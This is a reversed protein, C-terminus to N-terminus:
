MFYQILTELVQIESIGKMCSVHDCHGYLNTDYCPMCSLKETTKVIINRDSWPRTSVVQTPGALTVVPVGLAAAIHGLGSDGALLVRTKSIVAGVTRLTLDSAFKVREDIGSLHPILERDDTGFFIIVRADLFKDLFMRIVLCFKEPPFRKNKQKYGAGPHIGLVDRGDLGSERWFRDAHVRSEPDLHFYLQGIKADPLIMRLINLNSTVRHLDLEVPCWHTYGWRRPPLCDGTIVKIGSLLKLLQAIRPSIRTCIIAADFRERRFGRFTKILQYFIMKDPSMIRIENCFSAGDVVDAAARSGAIVTIHAEPLQQRLASLMPTSMIMDGIGWTQFVLVKNM